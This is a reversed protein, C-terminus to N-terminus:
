ARRSRRYALLSEMFPSRDHDFDDAPLQPMVRNDDLVSHIYLSQPPLFVGLTMLLRACQDLTARFAADKVPCTRLGAKRQAEALWRLILLEGHTVSRSAPPLVEFDNRRAFARLCDFQAIDYDTLPQPGQGGALRRNWEVRDIQGRLLCLIKRERYHRKRLKLTDAHM